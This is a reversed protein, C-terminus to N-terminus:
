FRSPFGSLSLGFLVINALPPNPSLRNCNYDIEKKKKKGNLKYANSLPFLYYTLIELQLTIM